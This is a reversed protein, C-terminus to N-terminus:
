QLNVSTTVAMCVPVVRGNTVLPEFRWRQIADVVAQNFAAFEPSLRFGRLQWVRAVRGTNDILAEGVWPELGVRTGKPLDPFQPAVHHTKKPTAARGAKVPQEGVFRQGLKLCTGSVPRGSEGPQAWFGLLVAM